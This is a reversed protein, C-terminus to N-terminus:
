LGEVALPLVEEDLAPVGECNDVSIVANPDAMPEPSRDVACDAKAVTCLSKFAVGECAIVFASLATACVTCHTSSRSVSELEFLLEVVGASGVVEM